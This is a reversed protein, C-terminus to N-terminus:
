DSKNKCIEINSPQSFDTMMAHDKVELLPINKNSQKIVSVSSEIKIDEIPLINVKLTKKREIKAQIENEERKASQDDKEMRQREEKLDEINQNYFDDDPEERDGDTYCMVNNHNIRKTLEHGSVGSLCSNDLVSMKHSSKDDISSNPRNGLNNKSQMMMMMQIEEKISLHKQNINIENLQKTFLEVVKSYGVKKNDLFKRNSKDLSLDNTIDNKIKSNNINEDKNLDIPINGGYDKEKNRKIEEVPNIVTNLKNEGNKLKSNRKRRIIIVVVVLIIILVVVGVGIAILITVPIGLVKTTDDEPSSPMTVNM